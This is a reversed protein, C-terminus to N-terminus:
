RRKYAQIQNTVDDTQDLILWPWAFPALFLVTLVMGLKMYPTLIEWYASSKNRDRYMLYAVVAMGSGYYLALETLYYTM